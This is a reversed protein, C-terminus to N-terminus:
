SNNRIVKLSTAHNLLINLSLFCRATERRCSLKKNYCDKRDFLVNYLYNGKFSTRGNVSVERLRSCVVFGNITDLIVKL